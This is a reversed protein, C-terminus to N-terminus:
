RRAQDLWRTRPHGRRRCGPPEWYLARVTWRHEDTKALRHLWATQRERYIDVWDPIGADAMQACAERTTRIMWEVWTELVNEPGVVLRRRGLIARVMKRQTRRLVSEQVSTLVWSVCGYLISPTVVTHFLKLRLKLPVDGNTLEARFVGFKAWAKSIRHGLETCHPDVLSLARGLYLTSASVDLVEILMGNVVASRVCSGYGIGNHQIKTKTPHLELGYTRCEVAVDALMTKIQPLTRALLLIDDAFRLNTLGTDSLYGLQLGYGKSAWRAKVRRMIHELVSNFLLPSIPDGQKTGKGVDFFRSSVEGHVRARQGKYLKSLLNIYTTQVGQEGLAEWIGRHFLSDFAKKFDLTAVWLPLNFENCKEALMTVTFLHDDCSYQPRFGAQDVSQEALLQERVRGALVRSFLKYMMPIICIPRYNDLLRPDGKKFLVRICSTKWYEPVATQPHLVATFIDALTQKLLPSGHILLEATVGHEDAAKRTPMGKLQVDIETATVAGVADAAGASVIETGDGAYLAEFFSAFAESIGEPDTQEVGNNDIVSTMQSRRHLGRIQELRRLDKFESLVVSLEASRRLRRRHRLQKQIAKSLDKEVQKHGQQRAARRREILDRIKHDTLTHRESQKQESQGVAALVLAKEIGVCTAEL